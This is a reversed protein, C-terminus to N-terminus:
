CRYNTYKLDKALRVFLEMRKNETSNAVWLILQPDDKKYHENEIPLPHANPQVLNSEINFNKKLLSKQKETQTVIFDCKKISYKLLM